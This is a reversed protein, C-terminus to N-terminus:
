GYRVPESPSHPDDEVEKLAEEAAPKSIINPSSVVVAANRVALEGDSTDIVVPEPSSTSSNEVTCVFDDNDVIDLYKAKAKAHPPNDGKDNSAPVKESSSVIIGEGDQYKKLKDIIESKYKEVGNEDEHYMVSKSCHHPALLINWELADENDNEETIEFIKAIRLYALDGFLLAKSWSDGDNLSVQMALSTNNRDEEIAEKLPAHIFIKLEDELIKNGDYDEIYNGPVVLQEDPFDPFQEQISEHFGIIKAKDGSSTDNGSASIKEIRRLAEEQFATADECLDEHNEFTRPTFWIEGITVKDLFEEFGKCHDEDPHTLAFVALYPKNDKQPLNEILEDIISVKGDEAATQNLDVQIWNDENLIISTSDGTGVPWFVFGREPLSYAM